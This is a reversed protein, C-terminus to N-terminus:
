NVYNFQMKSSNEKKESDDDAKGKKDSMKFHTHTCVVILPLKFDFPKWCLRWRSILRIKTSMRRLSAVCHETPVLQEFFSIVVHMSSKKREKPDKWTPICIGASNAVRAAFEEKSWTEFHSWGPKSFFLVPSVISKISSLMEVNLFDSNLGKWQTQRSVNEPLALEWRLKRTM